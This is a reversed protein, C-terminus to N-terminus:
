GYAAPLVEDLSRKVQPVFVGLGGLALGMGEGSQLWSRYMNWLAVTLALEPLCPTCASFGPDTPLSSVIIM